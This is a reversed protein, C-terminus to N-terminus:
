QGVGVHSLMVVVTVQSTQSGKTLIYDVSQVEHVIDNILLYM